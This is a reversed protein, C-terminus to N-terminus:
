FRFNLSVGATYSQQDGSLGIGDAAGFLEASLGGDLDYRLRADLSASIDSVQDGDGDLNHRDWNVRARGIFVGGPLAWTLRPGFGLRTLRLTEAAAQSGNSDVFAGLRERVHLVGLQPEIVVAGEHRSIGGTLDARITFRETDYKARVENDGEGQSVEPSGFGYALAGDLILMESLYTAGYLGILSIQSRFRGGGDDLRLNAGEHGLLGGIVYRGDPARWDVGLYLDYVTGDGPGEFWGYFLRSWGAWGSDKAGEDAWSADVKHSRASFQANVTTPQALGLLRGLAAASSVEPFRDAHRRLMIAAMKNRPVGLASDDDIITITVSGLAAGDHTASIIITEDNDDDIATVTAEVLNEGVELTLSTADIMYDEGMTASGAVSLTIIQNAAFAVGSPHLSMFVMHRDRRDTSRRPINRRM